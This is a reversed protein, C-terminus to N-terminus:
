KNNMISTKASLNNFFSSLSTKAQNIGTAVAKSTSNVLKSGEILAKNLKRGSETSAFTHMLRLKVDGISLQGNFPHFVRVSGSGFLEAELRARNASAWSKFCNTQMLEYVFSTNFDDIVGRDFPALAGALDDDGVGLFDSNAYSDNSDFSAQNFLSSQSMALNASSSTLKSKLIAGLLSHLYWKFNLRVWDDSGEWTSRVSTRRRRRGEGDAAENGDGKGMNLNMQVNKVIYDAFRLDATTLSLQKKLTESRVDVSVADVVVDLESLLRQKFLFNTAGITYSSVHSGGDSGRQCVSLYELYHLSLYPHLLNGNAYVELPMGFDVALIDLSAAAGSGDLSGTRHVPEKAVAVAETSESNVKILEKKPEVVVNNNRDEVSKAVDLVEQSSVSSNMTDKLGLKAGKFYRSMKAEDEEDLMLNSLDADDDRCDPLTKQLSSLYKKRFNIKIFSERDEGCADADFENSRELSAL